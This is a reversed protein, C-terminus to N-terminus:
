MPQTPPMPPEAPPPPISGLDQPIQGSDVPASPNTVDGGMLEQLVKEIQSYLEPNAQKIKDLFAQVEEVNSPDIGASQLMDFVDRLAQSKAQMLKSDSMANGSKFDSYKNQIKAMLEKLNSIMVDQSLGTQQGATPDAIEPVQAPSPPVPPFQPDQPTQPIDM